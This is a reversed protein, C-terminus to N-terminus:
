TGAGPLPARVGQGDAPVAVRATVPEVDVVVGFRDLRDDLCVEVRDGAFHDVHRGADVDRDRVDGVKNEPRDTPRGLQPRMDGFARALEGPGDGGGGVGVGEGGR